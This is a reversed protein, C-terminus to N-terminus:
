PIVLEKGRQSQAKAIAEIIQDEHSDIWDVVAASVSTSIEMIALDIVSISRDNLFEFVGNAVGERVDKDNM